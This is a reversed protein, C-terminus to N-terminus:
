IYEQTTGNGIRLTLDCVMFDKINTFFKDKLTGDEV